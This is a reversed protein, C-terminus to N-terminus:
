LGKTAAGHFRDMAECHLRSLPGFAVPVRGFDFHGHQLGELFGTAVAEADDSQDRLASECITFIKTLAAESIDNTDAVVSRALAGALITRPPTEPKWWEAESEYASRLQPASDALQELARDM